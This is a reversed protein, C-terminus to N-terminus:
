IHPRDETSRPRARLMGAAKGVVAGSVAFAFAAAALGWGGAPLASRAFLILLGFGALGALLGLQGEFCGCTRIDNDASM